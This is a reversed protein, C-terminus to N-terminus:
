GYRIRPDFWGYSLDVLLNTLVVAAAILLLIGQVLAYDKALLSEVALRGMGPINFVTEIVVSGGIIERLMMGLVTVVPILGNKLAHRMIVVRGMLGKSWATRIYDQHIVELMSSRTQRATAAMAFLSLCYVPMIVQKTSMWFDDLPSTYGFVPLIRLKLAFVYMLLIGLWFGPISVGAYSLVTVTNDMWGSRKVASIVGAIIGIFISIIFAMIGLHFTIPLRERIDNIVKTRHIISTGLDGRIVDTIWDVYQVFVPKDLGFEHKIAAIEEPTAQAADERTLVMLVPDGPLLRMLLFVIITVLTLVLLAQLMRRIIYATM